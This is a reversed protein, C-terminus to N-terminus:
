ELVYEINPNGNMGDYSLFYEKENGNLLSICIKYNPIGESRIVQLEISFDKDCDLNSYIENVSFGEQEVYGEVSYIKISAHEYRPILIIKEDTDQLYLCESVNLLSRQEPMPLNVILAIADEPANAFQIFNTNYANNQQENEDVLSSNNLSDDSVNSTDNSDTPAVSCGFLLSLMLVLFISKKM